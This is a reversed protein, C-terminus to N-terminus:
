VLTVIRSQRYISTVRISWTHVPFADDFYGSSHCVTVEGGVKWKETVTSTRLVVITSVIAGATGMFIAHKNCQFSSREVIYAELM